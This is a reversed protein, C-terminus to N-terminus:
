RAELAESSFRDLVRRPVVAEISVHGNTTVHRLVRGVRYLQAIRDRSADSADFEFTVHATDLALRSEIAAVLDDRGEGTRASVALAGPSVARLRTREGAELLDCKNFVDLAPVKDAGVEALVSRVAAIHGRERGNAETELPELLTLIRKLEPEAAAESSILLLGARFCHGMVFGPDAELAADITALPDAFFGLMLGAAEDFADISRRNGSSVPAGFRDYFTM